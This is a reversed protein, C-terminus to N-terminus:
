RGGRRERYAVFRRDIAEVVQDTLRGLESPTLAIPADARRTRMPASLEGWRDTAEADPPRSQRPERPPAAIPRRVIIEVPPAPRRELPPAATTHRAAARDAIVREIMGRMTTTSEARRERALLRQILITREGPMAPPSVSRRGVPWPLFPATKARRAIQRILRMDVRLALRHDSRHIHRSVGAALRLVRMTRDVPAIAAYRRAHREVLARAFSAPGSRRHRLRRVHRDFGRTVRLDRQIAEGAPLTKNV